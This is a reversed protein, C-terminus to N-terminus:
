KFDRKVKLKIHGWVLATLSLSNLAPDVEILEEMWCLAPVVRGLKLSIVISPCGTFLASM